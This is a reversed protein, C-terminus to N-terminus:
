YDDDEDDEDDDETDRPSYLNDLEEWLQSKFDLANDVDIGENKLYRDLRGAGSCNLIFWLLEAEEASELTIVIPEYRNNKTTVEM